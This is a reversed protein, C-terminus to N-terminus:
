VVSFFICVSQVNVMGASLLPFLLGLFVHLRKLAGSLAGKQSLKSNVTPLYPAHSHLEVDTPHIVFNRCDCLVPFCTYEVGCESPAANFDDPLTFEIIAFICLILNLVDKSDSHVCDIGLDLVNVEILLYQLIENM